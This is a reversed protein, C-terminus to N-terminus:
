KELDWITIEFHPVGTVVLLKKGDFSIDMEIIELDSVNELKYLLKKQPYKYVYVTPKLSHKASM